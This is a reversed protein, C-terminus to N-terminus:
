GVQLMFNLLDYKTFVWTGKHNSYEVMYDIKNYLEGWTINKAKGDYLYCPSKVAIQDYSFSLPYSDFPADDLVNAIHELSLLIYSM